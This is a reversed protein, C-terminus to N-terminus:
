ALTETKPTIERQGRAEALNLEMETRKSSRTPNWERKNLNTREESKM